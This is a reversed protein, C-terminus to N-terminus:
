RLPFLGREVNAIYQECARKHRYMAQKKRRTVIDSVYKYFSDTPTMASLRLYLGEDILVSDNVMVNRKIHPLDAIEHLKLDKHQNIADYVVLHEHLSKLPVRTQVPYKARSNERASAVRKKNDALLKRFQRVLHATRVELPVKIIMDDESTETHSVSFEELKRNTPECFLHSHNTWWHWFTDLETGRDDWVDGFDAYLKALRGKGKNLCVRKYLSSRRLYAWWYYYVSIQYPEAERFPPNPPKRKSPRVGKLPPAYIFFKLGKGGVNEEYRQNFINEGM